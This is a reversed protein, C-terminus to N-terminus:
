KKIKIGGAKKELYEVIESRKHLNKPVRYSVRFRKDMHDWYGMEEDCDDEEKIKRIDTIKMLKRNSDLTASIMYGDSTNADDVVNFEDELDRESIQLNCFGKWENMYHAFNEEVFPSALEKTTFIKVITFESHPANAMLEVWEDHAEVEVLYIKSM